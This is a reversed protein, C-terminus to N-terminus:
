SNELLKFGYDRDLYDRLYHGDNAFFYNDIHYRKCTEIEILSIVVTLSKKIRKKKNTDISEIFYVRDDEGLHEQEHTWALDTIKVLKGLFMLKFELLKKQLQIHDKIM